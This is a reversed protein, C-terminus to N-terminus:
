LSQQYGKIQDKEKGDFVGAESAKKAAPIMKTILTQSVSGESVSVTGPGIKLEEGWPLTIREEQIKPLAKKM